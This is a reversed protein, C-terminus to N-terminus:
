SIVTIFVLISSVITFSTNLRHISIISRMPTYKASSNVTVANISNMIEPLLLLLPLWVVGDPKNCAASLKSGAAMADKDMRTKKRKENKGTGIAKMLDMIAFSWFNVNMVKSM